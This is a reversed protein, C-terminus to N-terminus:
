WIPSSPPSTSHPLMASTVAQGCDQMGSSPPHWPFESQQEPLQRSLTHAQMGSLEGMEHSLSSEEHQEPRQMLMVEFKVQREQM